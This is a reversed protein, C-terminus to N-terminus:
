SPLGLAICFVKNQPVVLVLIIMRQEPEMAIFRSYSHYHPAIMNVGEPFQFGEEAADTPLLLRAVLKLFLFHSVVTM